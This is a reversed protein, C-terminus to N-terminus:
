KKLLTLLNGCLEKLNGSRQIACIIEELEKKTYPSKKIKKLREILYFWKDGRKLVIKVQITSDWQIQAHCKHCLPVLNLPHYRLYNSKSKGIFHHMVEFKRGCIECQLFPFHERFWDQLMRDTKKLKLKKIPNKSIKRM